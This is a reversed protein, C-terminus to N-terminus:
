IRHRRGLFTGSLGLIIGIRMHEVWMRALRNDYRRYLYDMLEARLKLHNERWERPTRGAGVAHMIPRINDLEEELQEPTYSRSSLEQVWDVAM